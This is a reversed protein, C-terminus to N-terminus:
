RYIVRLPRGRRAAMLPVHALLLRIRSNCSLVHHWQYVGPRPGIGRQWVHVEFRHGM